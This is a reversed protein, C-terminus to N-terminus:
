DRSLFSMSNLFRGVLIKRRFCKSNLRFNFKRIIAAASRREELVGDEVAVVALGLHEAVDLPEFRAVKRERGRHNREAGARHLQVGGRFHKGHRPRLKCLDMRERRQCLRAAVLDKELVEFVPQRFDRAERSNGQLGVGTRLAFVGPQEDDARVVFRAALRMTVDAEDRSGRVAGIGGTGHHRAHFDDRDRAVRIPVNVDGIQFGLGLRVFIIQRAQHDSIRARVAHELFGDAFNAFDDVRVASLNVHVARVHVRLDTQSRRSEDARVDAMQIQVLREANRVAAASGAYPRDTHRFMEDVKQGAM